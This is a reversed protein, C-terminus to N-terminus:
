SRRLVPKIDAIEATAETTHSGCYVGEGQDFLELRVGQPMLDGLQVSTAAGEDDEQPSGNRPLAALGLVVRRWALVPSVM